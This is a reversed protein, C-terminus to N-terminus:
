IVKFEGHYLEVQNRAHISLRGPGVQFYNYAGDSRLFRGTRWEKAWLFKIKTGLKM